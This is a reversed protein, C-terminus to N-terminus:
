RTAQLFVGGGGPLSQRRAVRLGLDALWGAVMGEAFHDLHFSDVAGDPVRMRAVAGVFSVTRRIGLAAGWRHRSLMAVGRRAVGVHRRWAAGGGPTGGAAPADLWLGIRGDPALCRVAAALGRAPDILHDLSTAYLVHDFTADRFPLYEGLGRVFAFERRGAGPLPDIGVVDACDRLYSPRPQPGCGVDLVAGAPACFAGFARADEREGVSLNLEPALDYARRGNDQVAQWASWREGLDPDPLPSPTMDYIGDVVAYCRRCRDCTVSTAVGAASGRLEGQCAACVLRAALDRM